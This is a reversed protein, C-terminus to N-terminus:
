CCYGYRAWVALIASCESSDQEIHQEVATHAASRSPAARECLRPLIAPSKNYGNCWIEIKERMVDNESVDDM